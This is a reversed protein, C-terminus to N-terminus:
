RSHVPVKRRRKERYMAQDAKALLEDLSEHLNAESTICGVSFSLPLRRGPWANRSESSEELREAVLAISERDFQGAVAFEDGGIRGLVDTERLTDKLIEATEALFESGATHGFSDNIHKLNDVDIYLVSFPLGARHAMRLAHEALLYFGRRNYLGTLEDRLSLDHIEIEMKNIRWALYLLLAISLMAALSALLATVYHAPMRGAGLIRARAGERLFPLVLLAPSLVRAIRSGIGPGLYISFVGAETRRFLAVLTMLLLCLLTLPSALYTTTHGFTGTVGLIHGSVLILVLLCLCFITLDALRVAIPRGARVLIIAIGLLAFGSASQPFMRQAPWAPSLLGATFSLGAPPLGHFWSELLGACSLLTLTVACALAIRRMLRSSQPESFQLSFAGLLAALASQAKMLQWGSPLMQALAPILYGTLSVLALLAVFALCSRKVAALRNLLAPDPESLPLVPAIKPM